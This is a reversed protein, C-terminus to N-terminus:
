HDSLNRACVEGDRAHRDPGIGGDGPIYGRWRTPIPGIGVMDERVQRNPVISGCERQCVWNPVISVMGERVQGIQDLAM